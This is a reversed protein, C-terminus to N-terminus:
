LKIERQYTAEAEAQQDAGQGDEIRRYIGLEAAEKLAERITTAKGYTLEYGKLLLEIEAETLRVRVVLTARQEGDQSITYRVGRM